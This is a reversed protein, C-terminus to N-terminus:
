QKNLKKLEIAFRTQQAAIYVNVPRMHNQNKTKTIILLIFLASFSFLNETYNLLFNFNIFSLSVRESDM